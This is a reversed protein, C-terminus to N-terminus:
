GASADGIGARRLADAEPVTIRPISVHKDPWFPRTGANLVVDAGLVHEGPSVVFDRSKLHDPQGFDIHFTDTAVRQNDITLLVPVTTSCAYPVFVFNVATARAETPSKNCSGLAIM